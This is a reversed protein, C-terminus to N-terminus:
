TQLTYSYKFVELLFFKERAQQDSSTAFRVKLTTLLLTSANGREAEDSSRSDQTEVSRRGLVLKECKCKRKSHLGGSKTTFIM